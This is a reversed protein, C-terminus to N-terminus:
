ETSEPKKRPARRRAPKKEADPGPADDAAKRRTRAKPKDAEAEAAAPAAEEAAKRRPRRKPAEEEIVGPTAEGAEVKTLEASADDAEVAAEDAEEAKRRRRPKPKEDDLQSKEGPRLIERIALKTFAQRHGTKKRTRVKAKYKFVIIKKHRGHAEVDAMVRAGEILPTGVTTEGDREILLVDGLEVTSGEDAPLREVTVARGPEVRYQKGGTRIVAYM